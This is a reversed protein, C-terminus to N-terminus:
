ATAEDEWLAPGPMLNYSSRPAKRENWVRASGLAPLWGGIPSEAGPAALKEERLLPARRSSPWAVARTIPLNRGPARRSRGRGFVPHTSPRFRIFRGAQCSGPREGDRQRGGQWRSSQFTDTAGNSVGTRWSRGHISRSIEPRGFGDQFLHLGTEEIPPSVLDVSDHQIPGTGGPIGSRVAVKVKQDDITVTEGAALGPSPEPVREAIEPRQGVETDDRPLLELRTAVHHAAEDLRGISAPPRQM